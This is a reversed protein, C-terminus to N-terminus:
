NFLEILNSQLKDSIKERKNDAIFGLVVAFFIMLFEKVYAKWNKSENRQNFSIKSESNNEDREVM